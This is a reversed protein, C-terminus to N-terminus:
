SSVQIHKIEEWRWAYGSKLRMLIFSEARKSNVHARQQRYLDEKELEPAVTEEIGSGRDRDRDRGRARTKQILYFYM